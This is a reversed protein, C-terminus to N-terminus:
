VTHEPNAVSEAEGAATESVEEAEGPIADGLGMKDHLRTPTATQAGRSSKDDGWDDRGMGPFDPDNYFSEAMDTSMPMRKAIRMIVSKKRMEEPWDKWPGTNKAGTRSVARVKLIQEEDMFERYIGGDKTKAVCYTFIIDGRDGAMLPEHEIREDDGLKYKFYDNERVCHASIEKLDGSNRMMKLKGQWMPLYAVEKGFVVLAAERGDPLLGDTACKVCASYLSNRDAGLLSDNGQIAMMSVRTFKEPTVHSPLAAQLQPAM